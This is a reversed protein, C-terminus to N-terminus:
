VRGMARDLRDAVGAGVLRRFRADDFGLRRGVAQAIGRASVIAALDAAADKLGGDEIRLGEVANVGDSGM